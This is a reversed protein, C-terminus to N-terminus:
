GEDFLAATRRILEAGGKATGLALQFEDIGNDNMLTRLEEACADPTGTIVFNPVWEPKVFRAAESPGGTRLAERINDEDDTTFGILEKVDRPSDVLRFTLQRRAEALDDDTLAIMTSYVITFPRDDQPRVKAVADALLRKHIYGLYFGDAAAAGAAMMKPGRGAVIIETNGPAYSLSAQDLAFVPGDHDVTEGELLRRLCSITDKVATLPQNRDIALPGLTLGGGAGLGVFARGGSLEDLTALAAATAGPHRVYPNTIGPGIRIRSTALAVATLTIWVDRTVLGEDYVWCRRCGLEEALVALSVIDAVPADPMLNVSMPITPTM